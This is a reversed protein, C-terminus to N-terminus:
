LLLTLSEFVKILANVDYDNSIAWIILSTTKKQVTISDSQHQNVLFQVKETIKLKFQFETVYDEKM